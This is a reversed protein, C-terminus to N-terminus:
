PPAGCIRDRDRETPSAGTHTYLVNKHHVNDSSTLKKPKTITTKGHQEFM